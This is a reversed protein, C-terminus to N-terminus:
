LLRGLDLHLSAPVPGVHRVAVAQTLAADSLGVRLAPAVSM